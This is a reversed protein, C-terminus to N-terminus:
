NNVLLFSSQKPMYNYTVTHLKEVLDKVLYNFQLENFYGKFIREKCKARHM